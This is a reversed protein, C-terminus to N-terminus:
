WSWSVGLGYYTGQQGTPLNQAFVIPYVVFQAGDKEWIRKKLKENESDAYVPVRILSFIWFVGDLVAGGIILGLALTPDEAFLGGVWMGVGAWQGLLAAVGGGVDGQIFSGIGGINLLGGIFFNACFPGAVPVKQTEYLLLKETESMGSRHSEKKEEVQLKEKPEENKFSSPEERSPSISSTANITRCAFAFGSNCAALLDEPFSSISKTCSDGRGWLPATNQCIAGTSFLVAKDLFEQSRAIEKEGGEGKYWMEALSLCAGPINSSCAKSFLERAKPLNVPGGDGKRFLRALEYCSSVNKLECGKSYAERAKAINKEGGIGEQWFSGILFCGIGDNRKCAQEALEKARVHDQPGGWGERWMLSEYVCGREDQRNCAEGFLGKAKATDVLGGDGMLYMIGLTVYGVTFVQSPVDQNNQLFMQEINKEIAITKELLARARYPDKPGGSGRICMNALHFCGMFEDLDCAKEFYGRAKPFDQPGGEGNYWSSGLMLCSTAAVIKDDKKDCLVELESRNLKQLNQINQASSVSPFFFLAVGIIITTDLLKKRM